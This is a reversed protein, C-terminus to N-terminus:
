NRRHKRRKKRHIMRFFGYGLIVGLMNLILDDVDCSGLLTLLQAIEVALIMGLACFFCRFFSRRKKWVAPIFYGLPIFMVVNGALNVFAIRAHYFYVSASGWKEIYYARSTLIHWYGGVTHFPDLNMNQQVQQWYPVGPTAGGRDFLLWLMLAGYVMFFFRAWKKM